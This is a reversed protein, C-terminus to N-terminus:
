GATIPSPTLCETPVLGEKYLIQRMHATAELIPLHGAGAIQLACAQPWVRQWCPISQRAAAFTKEGYVLDIPMQLDYFSQPAPYREFLHLYRLTSAHRAAAFGGTLTTKETRRQALSLNAIWRGLPNAFTTYYAVPGLVPLLFLRFYWPFEAFVDILLMREIRGHLQQAALMGLLAGSCNGVLTFPQPITRAVQAISSAIAHLSWQEPDPSRGCGPLDVTYFTADEPLNHILPAFTNRDGSWGHLGLFIRRGTGHQSVYV